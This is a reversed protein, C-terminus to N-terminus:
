RGVHVVPRPPLAVPRELAFTFSKLRRQTVLARELLRKTADRWAPGHKQLTRVTVTKLGGPLSTLAAELGRLHEEGLTVELSSFSGGGDVEFRLSWDGVWASPWRLPHATFEVASLVTDQDQLEVLSPGVRDFATDRALVLSLADVSEALSGGAFWWVSQDVDPLLRLTEVRWPPTGLERAGLRSLELLQFTRPAGNRALEELTASWAARLTHVRALNPHALFRALPAAVGGVELAEVTRWAPLAPDPARTVLAVERLFGKHFVATPSVQAHLGDFWRVGATSLLRQMHEREGMTLEGRAHAFQRAIFEGRPDGQESLADALVLRPHDDGPAEQVAALLRRIRETSPSLRAELATLLQEARPSLAPEKPWRGAWRLALPGFLDRQRAAEWPSPSPPDARAVREAAEVSGWRLLLEYVETWFRLGAASAYRSGTDLELLHGAVRPDPGLREFARLRREALKPRKSWPTALLADLEAPTARLALATWEAERQAENAGPLPAHHTLRAFGRALTAIRTAPAKAWARCLALTTAEPSTAQLAAELEVEVANM